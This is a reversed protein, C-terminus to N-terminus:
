SFTLNKKPTSIPFDADTYDGDSSGATLSALDGYDVVSPSDYTTDQDNKAKM